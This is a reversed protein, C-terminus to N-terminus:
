PPRDVDYYTRPSGRGFHELPQLFVSGSPTPVSGMGDYGGPTRWAERDSKPLSWTLRDTGCSVGDRQHTPHLAWGLGSLDAPRAEAREWYVIRGVILRPAASMCKLLDDM